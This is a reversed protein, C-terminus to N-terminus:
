QVVDFNQLSQDQGPAIILQRQTDKMQKFRGFVNDDGAEKFAHIKYTGPPVRKLLRYRGENDTIATAIFMASKARGEADTEPRFGDPMSVMVKIQGTRNGNLSCFGEVVAGRSLQLIGVDQMQGETELKIDTAASECYDAHSVRLMYEAFALKSLVFRGGGDTKATTTTHKDPMFPAFMALFGDAAGALGSNMDTVVTAGPVPQGRDDVVIGTIAAGMTLKVEVTPPEKTSDMTFPPSLTKAHDAEIIQFCFEGNPVNRINAYDGEFDRPSVRVDAFEPVKGINKPNNPFYRKLGVTFQRLVGGRAALVRLRVRGRQELVIKVDENGTLVPKEIVEEHGQANVTLQYPGPRLMPLRFRGDADTVTQATQPLKASQAAAMVNASTVPRGHQDVVIGGIPQGRALELTFENQQDAKVQLNSRETYAYDTAEAGLTIIGERPANTYRFFGTGDTVAVIGRERGPTPLMQYNLSPLNLFVQAGAIPFQGVEDLVRGQVIGGIPLKLDGADYWEKERVKISKHQMEPHDASVIRLDFTQNPQTAGIAFTGDDASQTRGLPQVKQGRRAAIYIAVVDGGTSSPLLLLDVGKAPMGNPLLVRGRVGQDADAAATPGAAVEVRQQNEVPTPTPAVAPAAPEPTATAPPTEIPPPSDPPAVVDPDSGLVYWAGAGVAALLLIPLLIKTANL